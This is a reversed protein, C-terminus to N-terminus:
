RILGGLDIEPGEIEPEAAKTPIPKPHTPAQNLSHESPRQQQQSALADPTLKDRDKRLERDADLTARVAAPRNTSRNLSESINQASDTRILTENTARAISNRSEIAPPAAQTQAPEIHTPIRKTDHLFPLQQQQAAPPDQRLEDRDKKTEETYVFLFFYV